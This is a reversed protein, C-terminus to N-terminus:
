VVSKRDTTLLHKISCNDNIFFSERGLSFAFIIFDFYISDEGVFTDMSYRYATSKGKKGADVYYGNLRCQTQGDCLLQNKNSFNKYLNPKNRFTEKTLFMRNDNILSQIQSKNTGDFQLKDFVKKMSENKHLYDNMEKIQEETYEEYLLMKEAKLHWFEDHFFYEVFSFYREETIDEKNFKLFDKEELSVIEDRNYPLHHFDFYQILGYIAASWRWDKAEISENFNMPDSM